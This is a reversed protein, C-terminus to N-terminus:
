DTKEEKEEKEPTKKFLKMIGGIIWLLVYSGFFSCVLMIAIAKWNWSGCKSAFKYLREDNMAKFLEMFESAQEPYAEELFSVFSPVNASVFYLLRWHCRNWMFEQAAAVCEKHEESCTDPLSTFYEKKCVTMLSTENGSLVGDIFQRFEKNTESVYGPCADRYKPFRLAEEAESGLVICALLLAVVARM